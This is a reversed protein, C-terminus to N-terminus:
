VGGNGFLCLCGKSRIPNCLADTFEQLLADIAEHSVGVGVGGTSKCSMEKHICAASSQGAKCRKRALLLLFGDDFPQSDREKAVGILTKRPHIGVLLNVSAACLKGKVVHGHAVVVCLVCPVFGRCQHINGLFDFFGCLVHAAIPFFLDVYALM